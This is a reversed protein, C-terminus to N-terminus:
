VTRLVRNEDIEENAAIFTVVRRGGLREERTRFRSPNAEVYRHLCQILAGLAHPLPRAESATRYGHRAQKHDKTQDERTNGSADEIVGPQAAPQLCPNPGACPIAM